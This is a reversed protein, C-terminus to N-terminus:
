IVSKFLNKWDNDSLLAADTIFTIGMDKARQIYALESNETDREFDTAILIKKAHKGGFREAVTNLKYLEIEPVAGNKCSIFVPTVARMLIVDIENKTDKKTDNPAHVIGDWDITVGIDCSDFYPKGDDTLTLAEYYTKMELIDGPTNLCRRVTSNKYKYSFSNGDLSLDSIIDAQLLKTIFSYYYTFKVNYDKIQSSLVSLDLTINMRDFKPSTRKEFEALVAIADNWEENSQRAISWLTDVDRKHTPNPLLSEPSIVGGHLSILESVTLSFVGSFCLEDDCDCDIIKGSELDIRQMKFPYKERYAAFVIGCGLLALDDGGTIDFICDEETKIIDTLTEVISRLNNKDISRTEIKCNIHKDSLFKEYTAISECMQTKEGLFILKQPKVALCSIMNEFPSKEFFEVVTM